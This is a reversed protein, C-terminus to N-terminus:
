SPLQISFKNCVDGVSMRFISKYYKKEQEILTRNKEIEGIAIKFNTDKPIHLMLKEELEPPFITKLMYIKNFVLDFVRTSYPANDRFLHAIEVDPRIKCSGGSLWTKMSLFPESSGWSRLGILGHLYLFWDKSFAYNAGLVVQVDAEISPRRSAWVPEIIQRCPRGNENESYLKLDAGYYKNRNNIIAETGYGIGVCTFCWVTKQQSNVCDIIKSLWNSNPYFLMHADLILIRQTTAQEVGFQRCADVGKRIGNKIYKVDPFRSFDYHEKSCDDIAIIEFISSDATDYISQITKYPWLGENLFPM